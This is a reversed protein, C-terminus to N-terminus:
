DETPYNDWTGGIHVNRNGKEYADIVVYNKVVYVTGDITVNGSKKIKGASSVVVTEDASIWGDTIDLENTETNDGKMDDISIWGKPIYLDYSNGDEAEVREGNEDYLANDKIANKMASGKSNIVITNGEEDKGTVDAKRFYYTTTIDDETYSQKGTLMRGDDGQSAAAKSFLYTGKTLWAINNNNWKQMCPHDADIKVIGSLMEGKGNFVYTKSDIVKVYREDADATGSGFAVAKDKGVNVLYFWKSTDEDDKTAAYVWGAKVGDVGTFAAAMSAPYPNGASAAEFWKDVLVGNEDFTYYYGDIYKSIQEPDDPYARYAKGSSQFYFWEEDEYDPSVMDEPVELYYWGTSGNVGKARAWGENEDGLYYINDKNDNDTYVIWGSWMRGNTDFFFVNSGGSWSVTKKALETDKGSGDKKRYAKGNSGFYYWLTDVEVDNISEGEDNPIARWDNVIRRGDSGVYYIDGNDDDDILQDTVMYGGEGLYYWDAGSKKWEYEVKEGDSDLYVWQGDEVDWAAFSTMAAGITLLAAASVLAAIKTQKRM